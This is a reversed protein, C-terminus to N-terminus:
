DLRFRDKIPTYNMAQMAEQSIYNYPDNVSSDDVSKLFGLPDKKTRFMETNMTKSEYDIKGKGSNAASSIDQLIILWLNNHHTMIILWVQLIGLQLQVMNENIGFM